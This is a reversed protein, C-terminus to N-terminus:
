TTQKNWFNHINVGGVILSNPFDKNVEQIQSVHHKNLTHKHGFCGKSIVERLKQTSIQGLVCIPFDINYIIM